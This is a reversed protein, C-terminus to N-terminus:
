KLPLYWNDPTMLLNRLTEDVEGNRRSIPDALYEPSNRRLAVRMLDFFRYGEFAGELAMEDIILNEVVPIQWDVTDQRSALEQEPMPMTYYANCESDGSGLSHIGIVRDRTFYTSNFDALGVSAAREEEDVYLQANEDCLGYKLICFATQPFGARCLAEAYRLWVMEVRYTLIENSSLKYIYQYVSNYDSYKDQGGLSTLQYNSALRLDGVYEARLLDTRPAYVTDIMNSYEVKQCYIQAASLSRMAKTPTLQYFYKNQSTSNYINALDSVTGDVVRQEMPIISLYGALSSYGDRPRQYETSSPWIIRSGTYSFIPYDRDSLYEHYWAAAERYRGAWLCLDGLLARMPIFFYDSSHNGIVGYQPLPVRAYPTLDNIFYNCVDEIGVREGAAAEEAKQETMLPETILPVKGYNIVLQLYTWARFAKVAAYENAFIYRGRRELLTDVHALYYNCNNIVAYYDSIHCYKNAVSFDFSALRKLDSTAADTTRVLDGRVEGLLVTRDAIQQMKNVIGMVSYVSDTPSNLNNNEEFEVMESDTDLLNSCATLMATASLLLTFLSFLNKKM